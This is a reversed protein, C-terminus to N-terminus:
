IQFLTPIFHLVTSEPDRDLSKWINKQTDYSLWYKRYMWTHNEKIDTYIGIANRLTQASHKYGICISLKSNGFVANSNPNPMNGNYELEISPVSPPLQITTESWMLVFSNGVKKFKGIQFFDDEAVKTAVFLQKEADQGLIFLKSPLVIVGSPVWEEKEIDFTIVRFFNHDPVTTYLFHIGVSYIALSKQLPVLIQQWNDKISSYIWTEIGGQRNLQMNMLRFNRYSNKDYFIETSIIDKRECLARITKSQDTFPNWILLQHGNERLYFCILGDGHGLVDRVQIQCPLQVEKYYQDGDISNMEQADLITSSKKIEVITTQSLTAQLNIFSVNHYLSWWQKCVCCLRMFRTLPLRALIKNQVKEPLDNWSTPM